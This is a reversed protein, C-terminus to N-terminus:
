DRRRRRRGPAFIWGGAILGLGSPEPVEIAGLATAPGNFWDHDVNTSQIGPYGGTSTYQFASWTNSNDVNNGWVGLVSTGADDPNVGNYNAIWLKHITVSSDLYHQAYNTNCYVIPDVGTANKILNCYSNVWASLSAAGQIDAGPIPGGPDGGAEEIDIMPLLHGSTIYGSALSLYHTAEEAPTDYEPQAYAYAGAPIGAAAAGLMNTTFKTDDGAPSGSPSDPNGPLGHMARVWSFQIGDAKVTSWNITGQFQSVDIGATRTTGARCFIAPGWVLLFVWGMARLKKLPM